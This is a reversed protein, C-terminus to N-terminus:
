RKENSDYLPKNLITIKNNNNINNNNNHQQHYFRENRVIYGGASNDTGLTCKNSALDTSKKNEQVSWISSSNSNINSNSMAEVAAASAHTDNSALECSLRDCDNQFQELLIDSLIRAKQKFAEVRALSHKNPISDYISIFLESDDSRL